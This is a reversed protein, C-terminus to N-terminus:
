KNVERESETKQKKRSPESMNDCKANQFKIKIKTNISAPIFPKSKISVTGYQYASSPLNVTIYRSIPFPLSFPKHTRNEKIKEVM